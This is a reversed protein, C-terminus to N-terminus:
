RTGASSARGAVTYRQSTQTGGPPYNRTTPSTGAAFNRRFTERIAFVVARVFARTNIIDDFRQRVYNAYFAGTTKGFTKNARNYLAYKEPAGRNRLYFRFSLVRVYRIYNLLTQGLEM